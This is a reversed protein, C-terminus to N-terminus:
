REASGHRNLEEAVLFERGDTFKRVEDGETRVAEVPENEFGLRDLGCRRSGLELDGALPVVEEVTGSAATKLAEQRRIEGLTAPESLFGPGNRRHRQHVM